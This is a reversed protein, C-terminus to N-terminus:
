TTSSSSPPKSAYTTKLTEGGLLGILEARV